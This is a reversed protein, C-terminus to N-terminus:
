AHRGDKHGISRSMAAVRRCWRLIEMENILLRSPLLQRAPDRSAQPFHGNGIRSLPQKLGLARPSGEVAGVIFAAVADRLSDSAIDTRCAVNRFADATL